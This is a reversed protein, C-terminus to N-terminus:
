QLIPQFAAKPSPRSIPYLRFLLSSRHIQVRNPTPLLSGFPNGPQIAMDFKLLRGDEQRYTPKDGAPEQSAFGIWFEKLIGPSRGYNQAVIWVLSKDPWRHVTPMPGGFLHARELDLMSREALNATRWMWFAQFAGVVVLCYTFYGIAVDSIKLDCFFGEWWARQYWRAPEAHTEPTATHQIPNKPEFPFALNEPAHENTRAAQQEIRGDQSKQEGGNQKRASVRASCTPEIQRVLAGTILLGGLIFVVFLAITGLAWYRSM